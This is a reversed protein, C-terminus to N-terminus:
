NSVEVLSHNNMKTMEGFETAMYLNIDYGIGFHNNMKTMEDFETAMYLNIGYRIHCAVHCIYGCLSGYPFHLLKGKQLGVHM